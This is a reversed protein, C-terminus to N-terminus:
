NVNASGKSDEIVAKTDKMVRRTDGAAEKMVAESRIIPTFHNSLLVM